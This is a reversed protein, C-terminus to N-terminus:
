QFQQGAVRFRRELRNRVHRGLLLVVPRALDEREGREEIMMALRLVIAAGRGADHMEVFRDAMQALEARQRQAVQREALVHIAVARVLRDIRGDKVGPWCTM